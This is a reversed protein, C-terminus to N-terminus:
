NETKRRRLAWLEPAYVAALYIAVIPLCLLMYWYEYPILKYFLEAVPNNPQISFMYNVQFGLGSATAYANIAKNCLYDFTYAFLTIGLTAPICKVDKEVLGLKMLLIPIGFEMVHPFYYFCFPADFLAAEAMDFNLVIAVLAGLSWLLCCCPM